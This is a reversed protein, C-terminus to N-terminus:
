QAQPHAVALAPFPLASRESLSTLVVQNRGQRKAKYLAADAAQILFELDEVMVNHKVVVGLSISCSIAARPLNIPHNAICAHLRKAQNMANQSDCGPLIFLFEEGGYRGVTDYVRLSARMRQATETLVADGISHGFSDNIDKFHDLDGLMLCLPSGQRGARELENRLADLVARRNLLGTLSDHTAQYRLTERAALLEAQLDLIRRGARLRLKLEEPDFPKAIYDDAGAEMGAILDEKRHKSTLLLLYTYPHNERQRIEKCVEVGDMGPMIWDLIALKPAESGDLIRYAELGDRAEVIEYGWRTLRVQLIRRLVDDDDAILVRM